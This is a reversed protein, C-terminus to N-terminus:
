IDIGKATILQIKFIKCCKLFFTVAANKRLYTYWIVQKKRIAYM